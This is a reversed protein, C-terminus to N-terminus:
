CLVQGYLSAAFVTRLSQNTKHWHSHIEQIRDCTLNGSMRLVHLVKFCMFSMIIFSLKGSRGLATWATMLILEADFLCVQLDIILILCRWDFYDLLDLLMRRRGKEMIQMSWIHVSMSRGHLVHLVRLIVIVAFPWSRLIVRFTVFSWLHGIGIGHLLSRSRVGAGLWGSACCCLVKACLNQSRRPVSDETKPKDQSDQALSKARRPDQWVLWNPQCGCCNSVFSICLVCSLKGSRGLVPFPRMLTSEADFLFMNSPNQLDMISTLSLVFWDNLWTVCSQRRGRAM